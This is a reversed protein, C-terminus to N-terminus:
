RIAAQMASHHRLKDLARALLSKGPDMKHWPSAGSPHPLAIVDVERGFYRTTVVRGVIEELKLKEGLVQEIALTGVASSSSPSSSRSKRPSGRNANRSRKKIRGVIATARAKTPGKKRRRCKEPSAARSLQLTCANDSHHGRERGDRRPAMSLADQRRDVCVPTRAKGRAPRASSRHALRPERHAARARGAAENKQVEQM